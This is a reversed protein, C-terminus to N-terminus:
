KTAEKLYANITCHSQFNKRQKGDINTPTSTMYKTTHYFHLWYVIQLILIKKNNDQM